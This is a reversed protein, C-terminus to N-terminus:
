FTNKSFFLYFFFLKSSGPYKPLQKAQNRHHWFINVHIIMQSFTYFLSGVKWWKGLSAIFCDIHSFLNESSKNFVKLEMSDPETLALADPEVSMLNDMTFCSTCLPSDLPILPHLPVEMQITVHLLCVM